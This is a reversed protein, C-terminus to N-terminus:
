FVIELHDLVAVRDDRREYVRAHTVTDVHSNKNVAAAAGALGPCAQLPDSASQHAIVAIEIGLKALLVEQGTIGAHFLPLLRTQAASAPTSLERLTLLKYM